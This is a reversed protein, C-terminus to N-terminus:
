ESKSTTPIEEKEVPKKNIEEKETSKKFSANEKKITEEGELKMEKIQAAKGIKGRVYYLKARRVDGKNVFKISEILPSYYPFIREVPIGHAGIRRVIFTTSIGKNHISIVDGEFVQTREKDGEIVKQYVAIKDGAKFEPFGRDKIGLQNVTEKTLEKAKM